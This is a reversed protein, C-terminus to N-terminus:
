SEIDTKKRRSKGELEKEKKALRKKLERIGRSRIIRTNAPTEGIREAIASLTLDHVRQLRLIEYLKPSIEKALTLIEDALLANFIVTASNVISAPEFATAQEGSEDSTKGNLSALPIEHNQTDICRKLHENAENKVISLGWRAFKEPERLSGLGDFIKGWALSVADSGHKSSECCGKRWLYSSATRQFRPDCREILARQAGEEAALVAAVLQALSPLNRANM